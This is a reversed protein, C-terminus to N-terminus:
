LALVLKYVFQPVKFINPPVESNKLFYKIGKITFIGGETSPSNESFLPFVEM